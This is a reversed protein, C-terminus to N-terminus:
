FFISSSRVQERNRDLTMGKYTRHATVEPSSLKLFDSGRKELRKQLNRADPDCQIPYIPLARIDKTKEFRPIYFTKNVPGFRVGDFHIYFCEIVFSGGAWGDNKLKSYVTRPTVDGYGVGERSCTVKLM